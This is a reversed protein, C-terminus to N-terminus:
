TTTEKTLPQTRKRRKARDKGRRREPTGVFKGADNLLLRALDTRGALQALVPRQDDLALHTYFQETTRPDSHGMTSAHLVRSVNGLRAIETAMAHRLTHFTVGGPQLGFVLGADKAASKLSKKISKVPEGRYRIVWTPRRGTRVAKLIAQLEPVVPTEQLGTRRATKHADFRIRMLDRDLHQDFRLTLIQHLRLKPALAGIALALRAHPDAATLWARLAAIPLDTQRKRLPDRDIHRFPNEKIRCHKRWRPRLALEYMGSLASRYSNKSSGSLARADMWAEFKVIWEPDGIPDLLRLDHYVGDEIPDSVSPQRGWFGLVMRLTRELIDPRSLTIRQKALYHPAWETFSPTMMRDVTAIDWLELRLREKVKSEVRLADDRRTQDTTGQHRKGKFWFDYHWISGRKVVTM